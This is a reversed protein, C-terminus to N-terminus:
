AVWEVVIISGWHFKMVLVASGLTGKGIFVIGTILEKSTGHVVVTNLKGWDIVSAWFWINVWFGRKGTKISFPPLLITLVGKPIAIWAL